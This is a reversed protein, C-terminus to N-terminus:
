DNPSRRNLIQSQRGNGIGNCHEGLTSHDTKQRVVSTTKNCNRIAALKSEISQKVIM